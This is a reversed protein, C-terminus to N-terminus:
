IPLNKGRLVLVGIPILMLCATVAMWAIPPLYPLSLYNYVALPAASVLLGPLVVLTTWWAGSYLSAMPVGTRKARELLVGIELLAAAVVAPLELLAFLVFSPFNHVKSSVL